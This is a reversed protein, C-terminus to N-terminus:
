LLPVLIMSSLAVEMVVGDPMPPDKPEALGKRQAAARAVETVGNGYAIGAISAKMFDMQNRTLTGTKDSFVFEVQGIEELILSNRCKAPTDTEQHYMELDWDIFRGMLVRVLEM